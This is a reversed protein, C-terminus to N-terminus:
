GLDCILVTLGLPGRRCRSDALLPAFPHPLLVTLSVWCAKDAPKELVCCAAGQERICLCACVSLPIQMSVHM